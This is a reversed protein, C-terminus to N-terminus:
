HPIEGKFSIQPNNKKDQVLVSKFYKTTDSLLTNVVNLKGAFAQTEVEILSEQLDHEIDCEQKKVWIEKTADVFISDTIYPYDKLYVSIVVSGSDLAKVNGSNDVSVIQSDSSEWVVSATLGDNIEVTLTFEDNVFVDLEDIVVNEKLIEISKYVSVEPTTGNASCGVFLLVLLLNLLLCFKKM